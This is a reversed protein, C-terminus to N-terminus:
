ALSASHARWWPASARGWHAVGLDYALEVRRHPPDLSHFGASGILQSNRRDIIAWRSPTAPDSSQYQALQPHLDEVSQPRWSSHELVGSPCLSAYWAPADAIEMPRLALWDHTLSPPQSHRM